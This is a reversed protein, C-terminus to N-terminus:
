RYHKMIKNPAHGRKRRMNREILLLIFIAFIAILLILAPSFSKSSLFTDEDTDRVGGLSPQNKILEEDLAGIVRATGTLQVNTKSITKIGDTVQINYNGDPAVLRIEKYEGVDINQKQNIIKDGILIQITNSYPVNGNNRIILKDGEISFDVEEREGISFFRKVTKNQYTASIKWYGSVFNKEIRFNQEKNSILTLSFQKQDSYDSISISVQENIPVNDKILLVEFTLNEGSSYIQKGIRIDLNPEQASVITILFVMFFVMVLFRLNGRM